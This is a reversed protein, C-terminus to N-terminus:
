RTFVGTEMVSAGPDDHNYGQICILKFYRLDQPQLFSIYQEDGSKPIEFRGMSNWQKGDESVQFEVTEMPFATRQVFTFGYIGTFVRGMDVTITYPYDKGGGTGSFWMTNPNDDIINAAVRGSKSDEASATASWGAKPIDVPPGIVKVTDYATYFTDISTSDPLYLTRSLIHDGASFAMDTIFTTDALPPIFLSRPNGDTGKYLIEAGVSTEDAPDSWVITGTDNVYSASKILRSLLSSNYKDGYSHGLANVVVSSNGKDDLTYIDFSYFGEPLDNLMIEVTDKDSSKNHQVPVVLSDTKNNWYIKAKTVSTGGSITFVMKIRNKGSFVRVSDPSAPYVRKGNKWFDRYTSDMKSCGAMGVVILFIMFVPWKVRSHIRGVLRVSIYPKNMMTRLKTNFM